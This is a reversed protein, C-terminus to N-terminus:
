EIPQLSNIPNCPINTTVEPVGMKCLTSPSTFAVAIPYLSDQSPLGSLNLEVTGSSSSADIFPM